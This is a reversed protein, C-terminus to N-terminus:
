GLCNADHTSPTYCVATPTLGSGTYTIRDPRPATPKIHSLRCVVEAETLRHRHYRTPHSACAHSLRGLAIMRAPSIHHFRPRTHHCHRLLLHRLCRCSHRREYSTVRTRRRACLVLPTTVLTGRRSPSLTRRQTRATYGTKPGLGPSATVPTATADGIGTITDAAAGKACM